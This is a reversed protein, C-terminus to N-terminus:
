KYLRSFAQVKQYEMKDNYLQDIVQFKKYTVEKLRDLWLHKEAESLLDTVAGGWYKYSSIDHLFFSFLKRKILLNKIVLENNLKENLKIKDIERDLLNNLTINFFWRSHMLELADLISRHIYSDAPKNKPNVAHITIQRLISIFLRNDWALNKIRLDPDKIVPPIKTTGIQDKANKNPEYIINMLINSLEKNKLEFNNQSVSDNGYPIGSFIENDNIQLNLYVNPNQPSWGSNVNKFKRDWQDTTDCELNIKLKNIIEGKIIDIYDLYLNKETKENDGNENIDIIQSYPAYKSRKSLSLLAKIHLWDIHEDNVMVVRFTVCGPGNFALRIVPQIKVTFTAIEDNDTEISDKNEESKQSQPKHFYCTYLKEPLEKYIALHMYEKGKFLPYTISTLGDRSSPTGEKWGHAEIATKFFDQYQFDDGNNENKTNEIYVTNALFSYTFFAEISHYDLFSETKM